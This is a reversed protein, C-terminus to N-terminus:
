SGGALFRASKLEKGLQWRIFAGLLRRAEGIQAASYALRGLHELPTDLSAELIKLTGTSVGIGATGPACRGCIVSGREPLFRYSAAGIEGCQACADLVPRYGALALLKLEFAALWGDRQLQTAAALAPSALVEFGQDLLDFLDPHAERERTAENVLETLYSARTILDYETILAPRSISQLVRGTASYLRATVTM